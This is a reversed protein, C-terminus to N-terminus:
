TFYQQFFLIRCNIHLYSFHYSTAYNEMLLNRGSEDIIIGIKRWSKWINNVVRIPNVFAIGTSYSLLKAFVITEIGKGVLADVYQFLFQLLLVFLSGGFTLSFVRLFNKIIYSHIKKIKLMSLFPTLKATM